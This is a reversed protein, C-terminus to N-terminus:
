MELIPAVEISGGNHDLMPCDQAIAIAAELDACELVTYGSLPNPGGHDEVGEVSVTYSQGVPAGADSLEAEYKQMWAGWAAMARDREAQTEPRGGGHYALLFKAM